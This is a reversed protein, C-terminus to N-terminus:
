DVPGADEAKVAAQVSGIKMYEKFKTRLLKYFAPWQDKNKYAKPLLEKM